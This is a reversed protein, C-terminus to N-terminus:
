KKNRVSRAASAHEDGGALSASFTRMRVNQWARMSMSCKNLLPGHTAKAARPKSQGVTPCNGVVGSSKPGDRDLRALTYARDNGRKKLTVIDGQDAINNRLSRRDGGHARLKSKDVTSLNSEVNM